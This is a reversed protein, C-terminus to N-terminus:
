LTNSAPSSPIMTWHGPFFKSLDIAADVYWRDPAFIRGGTNLYAGWWSYSSNAIVLQSAKSMLYMDTYPDDLASSCLIVNSLSLDPFYSLPAPDDSFVYFTFDQERGATIQDIAARYYHSLDLGHVAQSSSSAYFDGRRIHLAVSQPEAIGQLYDETPAAKRGLFGGLADRVERSCDEFYLPSQWYGVYYAARSEAAALSYGSYKEIVQQAQRCLLGFSLKNIRRRWRERRKFKKKSSTLLTKGAPHIEGLEYGTHNSGGSYQSADLWLEAQMQKSKAFGFAYQFFQNGMGGAIEVIVKRM